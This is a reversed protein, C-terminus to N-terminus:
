CKIKLKSLFKADTVMVTTDILILDQKIISERGFDVTAYYVCGLVDCRYFISLNTVTM